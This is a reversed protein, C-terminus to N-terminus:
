DFSGWDVKEFGIFGRTRFEEARSCRWQALLKESKKLLEPTERITRENRRLLWHAMDMRLYDILPPDVSEKSFALNGLSCAVNLQAPHAQSVLAETKIRHLSHHYPRGTDLIDQILKLVATCFEEHDDEGFVPLLLLRIDFTSPLFSPKCDADERRDPRNRHLEIHEIMSELIPRCHKYWTQDYDRDGYLGRRLHGLFRTWSSRFREFGELIIHAQELVLTRLLSITQDSLRSSASINEKRLLDALSFRELARTGQDFLQLWHKNAETDRGLATNESIESKAEHVLKQNLMSLHSDPTLNAKVCRQWETFYAVPLLDPISRFMASLVGLRPPVSALKELDKSALKRKLFHEVWRRHNAKCIEFAPLLIERALARRLSEPLKPDTASALFLSFLPPTTDEDEIVPLLDNNKMIAWDEEEFKVRETLRGMIPVVPQLAKMIQEILAHSEFAVNETLMSLLSEVIAVRIDIHTIKQFLSTLIELSDNPSIFSAERLLQALYKVTTVKVLPKQDKDDQSGSTAQEGVKIEIAKAFRKLMEQTQSPSLRSLLTSTLFQRHWSSTDPRDIIASLILDSAIQPRDCKGLLTILQYATPLTTPTTDSGTAKSSTLLVGTSLALLLKSPVRDILRRLVEIAQVCSLEEQLLFDSELILPPYRADDTSPFPRALIRAANNETSDVYLMASAILGEEIGAFDRRTASIDWVRQPIFPLTKPQPEEFPKSLDVLGARAGIMCDIVTVPLPRSKTAPPQNSIPDWECAESVESPWSIVPYAQSEEEFSPMNICLGPLAQEFRSRWIWLAEREDMRQDGELQLPKSFVDGRSGKSKPRQDALSSMAHKWAHAIREDRGPGEPLQKAYIQLATNYSDVYLGIAAKTEAEVPLTAKAYKESLFVIQAARSSIFPTSGQAKNTGVDFPTNLCQIPLGQPWPRPLSVVAPHNFPRVERWLGDRAQALLDLFRYSASSYSPPEAEFSFSFTAHSLPGTAFNFLLRENEPKCGSRELELLTDITGKWVANHLIQDSMDSRTQLLSTLEMRREVVLGYISKIASWDHVYFSPENLASCAIQFLDILIGNAEAVRWSGINLTPRGYEDIKIGSLLDIGEQTLLSETNYITKATM